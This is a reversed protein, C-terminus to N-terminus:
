RNVWRTKLDDVYMHMNSVRHFSSVYLKGREKFTFGLMLVTENILCIYTSRQNAPCHTLLRFCCTNKTLYLDTWQIRITQSCSSWSTGCKCASDRSMDMNQHNLVLICLVVKLLIPIIIPSQLSLDEQLSTLLLHKARRFIAFWQVFIM